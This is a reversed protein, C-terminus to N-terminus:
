QQAIGAGAIDRARVQADVAPEREVAPASGTGRLLRGVRLYGGVLYVAAFFGLLLLFVTLTESRWWPEGSM